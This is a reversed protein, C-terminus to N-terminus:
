VSPRAPIVDGMRPAVMPAYYGHVEQVATPTPETTRPAAPPAYYGYVEQNAAPQIEAATGTTTAQLEHPAINRTRGWFGTATGRTRRWRSLCFWFRYNMLEAFINLVFFPARV